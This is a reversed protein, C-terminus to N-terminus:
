SAGLAADVSHATSRTQQLSITFKGLKGMTWSPPTKDQSKGRVVDPTSTGPGPSVRGVIEVM